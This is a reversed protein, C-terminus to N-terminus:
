QSRPRDGQAHCARSETLGLVVCTCSSSSCMCVLLFAGAGAGVCADAADAAGAGAGAGAGFRPSKPTPTFLDMGGDGFDEVDDDPDAPCFDPGADALSVRTHAGALMCATTYQKPYGTSNGSAMAFHTLSVVSGIGIDLPFNKRLDGGRQILLDVNVRDLSLITVSAGKKGVHPNYRGITGRNLTGHGPAGKMSIYTM